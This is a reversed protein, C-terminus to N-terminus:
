ALNEDSFGRRSQATPAKKKNIKLGASVEKASRLATREVEARYFKICMLKPIVLAGNM